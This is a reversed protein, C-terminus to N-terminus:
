FICFLPQFESLSRLIFIGVIEVEENVLKVWHQRHKPKKQKWMILIIILACM